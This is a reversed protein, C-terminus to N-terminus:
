ENGAAAAGLGMWSGKLAAIGKSAIRAGASIGGALVTVDGQRRLVSVPVARLGGTEEVFVYDKGARQVVAESAVTVSGAPAAAPVLAVQVFQGPTLCHGAATFQARVLATQTGGDLQGGAALIRGQAACGIVEVADGVVVTALQERTAQLDVWQRDIAALQLLATGSDVQAGVQVSQELVIGSHPATLTVRASLNDASRLGEIAAKGMGALSLLQRQEQLAAAAQLAQDRSDQLRSEAIIGDAFLAEDRALRKAALGAAGNAALFARQLGLLEASYLRLLPQGAKVSDGPNILAAELRGTVGAILVDRRDNPVVVRGPLLQAQTGQRAPTDAAARAIDIKLGSAQRQQPTLQLLPQPAAPAASMWALGLMLTAVRLTLSM